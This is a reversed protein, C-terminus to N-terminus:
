ERPNIENKAIRLTNIIRSNNGKTIPVNGVKFIIDKTEGDICIKKTILKNDEM